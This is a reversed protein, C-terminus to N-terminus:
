AKQVYKMRLEFLINKFFDEEEKTLNGRTKEELMGLVDITHRALELDVNKEGTIPDPVEGLNVLVSSSLSMLFTIMDVKPLPGREKYQKEVDKRSKESSM